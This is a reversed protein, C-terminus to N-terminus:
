CDEVKKLRGAEGVRLLVLAVLEVLGPVVPLGQLSVGFSDTLTDLSKGFHLHSHHSIVCCFISIPNPEWIRWDGRSVVTPSFSFVVLHFRPPSLLM